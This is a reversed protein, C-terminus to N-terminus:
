NLEVPRSEYATGYEISIHQMGVERLVSVHIRATTESFWSDHEREGGPCTWAIWFKDEEDM